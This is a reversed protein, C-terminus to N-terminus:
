STLLSSPTVLDICCLPPMGQLCTILSMEPSINFTTNIQLSHTTLTSLFLLVRSISTLPSVRQDFTSLMSENYPLRKRIIKNLKLHKLDQWPIDRGMSHTGHNRDHLRLRSHHYHFRCYHTSFSATRNDFGGSQNSGPAPIHVRFVWSTEGRPQSM